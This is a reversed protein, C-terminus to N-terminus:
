EPVLPSRVIHHVHLTDKLVHERRTLDDSTWRLTAQPPLEVARHALQRATANM